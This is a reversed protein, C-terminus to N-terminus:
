ERNPGPAAQRPTVTVSGGAAEIKRKADEATQRSVKKLITRPVAEGLNKADRLALGLGLDEYVVKM